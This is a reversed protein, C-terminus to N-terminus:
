VKRWKNLESSFKYQWNRSNSDSGAITYSYSGRSYSESAFPADASKGYKDDWASIKEVLSIFVRPVALAYITGSFTEDILSEEYGFKYVGDNFVSDTIRYYQGLKLFDVNVSGNSM